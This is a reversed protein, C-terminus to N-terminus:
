VIVNLASTGFTTVAASKVTEAVADELRVTVNADVVRSLIGLQHCRPINLL